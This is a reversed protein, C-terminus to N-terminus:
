GFLFAVEFREIGEEEYDVMDSLELENYDSWENVEEEVVEIWEYGTLPNEVM